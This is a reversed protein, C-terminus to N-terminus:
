LRWWSTHDMYAGQTTANKSAMCDDTEVNPKSSQNTHCVIRACAEGCSYASSDDPMSLFIRNIGRAGHLTPSFSAPHRAPYCTITFVKSASRTRRLFGEDRQHNWLRPRIYGLNKSKRRVSQTLRPLRITRRAWPYKKHM